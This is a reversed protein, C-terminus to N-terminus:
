TSAFIIIVYHHLPFAYSAMNMVKHHTFKELM